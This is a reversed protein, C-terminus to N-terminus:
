APDAFYRRIDGILEEHVPSFSRDKRHVLWVPGSFRVGTVEVERLEGTGLERRVASRFLCALGLGQAVARKMAEPHGFEIVSTRPPLGMEAFQKDVFQRRLSGEQAEVFPLVALDRPTLPGDGVLDQPPAVVVLEDSGIRHAVLDGRAPPDQVVVVCLDNTGGATSAIAREADQIDVRIRVQPRRRGFTGMVAPLEYSGISMSTGVVISGLEGHSLSQLDRGLLHTRRLVDSCWDHVLRGGETLLLGRGEKAFLQVGLRRELSRVHETVVPQAVGLAEAARSVGGLTVVRDFVELKQLSIRQDIEM